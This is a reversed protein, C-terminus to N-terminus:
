VIKAPLQFLKKFTKNCQTLMYNRLYIILLQSAIWAEGLTWRMSKIMSIKIDKKFPTSTYYAILNEYSNKLYGHAGQSLKSRLTAVVEDLM